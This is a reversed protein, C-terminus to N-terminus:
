SGRIPSGPSARRNGVPRATLLANVRERVRQVAEDRRGIYARAEAQAGKGLRRALEPDRLLMRLADALAAYDNPPVLLGTRDPHVIDRIGGVDTGILACGAVGAEVLVMGLGENIRSPLVAVLAGGFFDPMSDASLWGRFRVRDALGLSAALAELNSRQPGDGAVDLLVDPFEEALEAFAAVLVDFGKDPVLRGACAVRPRGDQRAPTPRFWPTPHPLELIREEPVGAQTAIQHTSSGMPLVLDARRLVFRELAQLIRSEGRKGYLARTRASFDSIIRVVLV